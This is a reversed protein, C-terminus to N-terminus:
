RDHTLELPGTWATQITLPREGERVLLGRGPPLVSARVGSFLQGETRDGSMVLATVGSERLALTFPEYLGRAAGTVRRTMVVHLGLDRASALFPIFGALPATGAAALVDYDDALLVIRPGSFTHEGSDLAAPDEPMRKALEASVAATLQAARPASPAYGGVYKDDVVDRLGRRPDFIAFVLEEDGYRSILQEAVLRLLNTKGCARDGMVFLHQDAGFLDLVAPSLDSENVGLPVGAPLQVHDPLSSAPLLGPLVRVAPAQPGVWSARIARVAQALGAGISAADPLSDIRPLAVHALLKRDTLARGPQDPRITESLRREIGSDSPDNLRLEIRNGFAAQQAIRVENWRTMTSVVHVGYAGGRGLIAHVLPELDEFDGNIQGYGDLVVVVDAAALEPVAGDAHASRLADLTDIRRERFVRERHDIMARVEELTRRVREPDNRSAVGGVHPLDGLAQLGAGLLDIGYIAVETPSHTLSLSLVLTRLLTSKGSQPGGIIGVHGGARRLDLRWSGQWQNAPDDLLGIPVRLRGTEGRMRLGDAAMEIGGVSGGIRDLSIAAPMPPLWIQPVPEAAGVLQDVVTSLLTPGTSRAPLLEDGTPEPAQDPLEATGYRPVEVVRPAGPLLVVEGEPGRYPGSIYASKFKQYITTDVKLYGFGPLPPLHFADPTELVTRSEAESFTRLGLRYSLYTDLGRLKGGEIRQSSLLLHVGISRGIRGISLFLEIFDPKATLLEGFEDIIVLLHPLAPLDPRQARVLQYDTINAINGADKLVQQRRQVEGALSTHVREVMGVDDSLNTIVGAVHPLGDFPAFTAGGKYDVLIMSLLEPSHTTLLSLVLTRLMESKGSGTAGVCLGHPGMGLQASEKLDLLVPRGTDDVGLPVRLFDRDGRPKWLSGLHLSQPDEIGLLAPFDAPASGTGDDYSEPSLRLPALLRALGDALGVPVDDLDGEYTYDRRRDEVRLRGGEVTIRLSVESPESLRDSVLHLVTIGLAGPTAARDPIPLGVATEGYTDHVVLLRQLTPALANGSLNRRAEAAQNARANLETGMLHALATPDAAVRRVPGGADHQEQDALHPLWRVWDWDTERNPPYAVAMGVDEPAHLAAAQTLLARVVTLVSARDGVISVDGALDLPVRLPLGVVTGYRRVLAQAEAMMFPDTPQLPSGKDQLDLPQAPLPGTGARLALFDLDRRRREWLRSPDRVVDLLAAPPPDLERAQTLTQKEHDSLEERLEELYDLYRERQQRRTRTAQGRQTFFMAGTAVVVLVMVLAGIGALGSGRFVLMMSMSGGMGMMPLLAHMGGLGKSEPLVPPAEVPRPDVM